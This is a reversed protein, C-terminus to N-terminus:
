RRFDIKLPIERPLEVSIGKGDIHISAPLKIGVKVIGADLWSYQKKIPDYYVHSKPYYLFKRRYNHAPLCAPPGKEKHKKIKHPAPSKPNKAYVSPAVWAIGIALALGWVALTKKMAGIESM